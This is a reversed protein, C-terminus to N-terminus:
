RERACLLRILPRHLRSDATILAYDASIRSLRLNRSPFHLSFDNSVAWKLGILKFREIFRVYNLRRRRRRQEPQTNGGIVLSRPVHCAPIQSHFEPNQLKNTKKLAVDLSFLSMVTKFEPALHSRSAFFDFVLTSSLSCTAVVVRSLLSARLTSASDNSM